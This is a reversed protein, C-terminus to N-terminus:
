WNKIQPDSSQRVYDPKQKKTIYYIAWSMEDLKKLAKRNYIAPSIAGTKSDPDSELDNIMKEIEAVSKTRSLRIRLTEAKAM